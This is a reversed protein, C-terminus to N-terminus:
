CQDDEPVTTAREQMALIVPAWADIVAKRAAPSGHLRRENAVTNASRVRQQRMYEKARDDEATM